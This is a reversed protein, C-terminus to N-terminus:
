GGPIARRSSTSAAFRRNWIPPTMCGPAPGSSPRPGVTTGLLFSRALLGGEALLIAVSYLEEGTSCGASCIRLPGRRIALNPLVEARMGEFVLSDRFFETVGILLSDVAAPLLAPRNELVERAEETSRVKLM